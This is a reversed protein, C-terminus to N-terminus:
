FSTKLARATVLGDASVQVYATDRDDDLKYVVSDFSVVPQGGISTGVPSIQVTQRLALIATPTTLHISRLQTAPTTPVDVQTLDDSCGTLVSCLAIGCAVGYAIGYAVRRTLAHTLTM